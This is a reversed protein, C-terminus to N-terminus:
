HLLHCTMWPWYALGWSILSHLTTGWDIHQWSKNKQFLFSNNVERMQKFSCLFLKSKHTRLRHYKISNRWIEEKDKEQLKNDPKETHEGILIKFNFFFFFGACISTVLQDLIHGVPGIHIPSSWLKRTSIPKNKKWFCHTCEYYGPCVRFCRLSWLSNDWIYLSNHHGVTSWLVIQLNM